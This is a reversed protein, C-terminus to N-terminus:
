PALWFLFMHWRQIAAEGLIECCMDKVAPLILQEGITFHKKAKAICNAVLFSARLASVHSSITAKSLQKQEEHECTKTKFFDLPKDKWAPHKTEM